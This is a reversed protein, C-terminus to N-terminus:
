TIPCPPRVLLGHSHLHAPGPGTASCPHQVTPLPSTTPPWSPVALKLKLPRGPLPCQLCKADTIKDIEIEPVGGGEAPDPRDGAM